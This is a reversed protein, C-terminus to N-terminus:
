RGLWAYVYRQKRPGIVTQLESHMIDISDFIEPIEKSIVIGGLRNIRKTYM